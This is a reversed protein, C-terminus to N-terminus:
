LRPTPSHPSHRRLSDRRRRRAPQGRLGDSRDGARPQSLARPVLGEFATRPVRAHVTGGPAHVLRAHLRDTRPPLSEHFPEVSTPRLGDDDFKRSQVNPLLVAKDSPVRPLINRWSDICNARSRRWRKVRLASFDRRRAAERERDPRGERNDRTKWKTTQYLPEPDFCTPSTPPSQKSEKGSGYLGQLPQHM